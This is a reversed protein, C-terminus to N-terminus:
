KFSVNGHRCSSRAWTHLLRRLVPTNRTILTWMTFNLHLILITYESFENGTNVAARNHFERRRASVKVDARGTYIYIFM